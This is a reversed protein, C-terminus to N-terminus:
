SRFLRTGLRAQRMAHIDHLPAWATMVAAGAAARAQREIPSLWGQILGQGVRQGIPLLKLAASVLGVVSQYLFAAAAEEASWGASGLALGMSVAFHGPAEGAEVLALYDRLTGTERRGGGLRLVQRGMQRGALRTERCLMLADLELDAPLAAGLRLGAAAVAQAVAVAERRGLEGDLYAAGYRALGEGDRVAGAQVASELGSSYAYGGSPFFSDVFRIGDLLQGTNM